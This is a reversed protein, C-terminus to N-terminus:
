LGLIVQLVDGGRLRLLLDNTCLFSIIYFMGVMGTCTLLYPVYLSRNKRIGNWAIKRYFGRRM